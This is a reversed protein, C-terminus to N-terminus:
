RADKQKAAWEEFASHCYKLLDLEKLEAAVAEPDPQGLSSAVEVVMLAAFKAHARELIKRANASTMPKDQETSYRESLQASSLDPNEVRLRLMHYYNERERRLAQWTQELVEKQWERVFAAEQQEESASQDESGVQDPLAQPQKQRERHYGRVLNIAVTKVYDRFRGREPDARRFAGDLFKVAFQQCLEEAVDVDRVIALLYRYVAGLYRQVLEARAPQAGPAQSRHAELLMTWQTSIRSLRQQDDGHEM